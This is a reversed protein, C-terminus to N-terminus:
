GVTKAKTITSTHVASRMEMTMLVPRDVATATLQMTASTSLM